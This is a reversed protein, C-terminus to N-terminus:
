LLQLVCLLGPGMQKFTVGGGEWGRRYKKEGM